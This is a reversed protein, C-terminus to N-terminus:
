GVRDISWAEFGFVFCPFTCGLPPDPTVFVNAAVHGGAVQLRGPALSVVDPPAPALFGGVESERAWTAGRRYLAVHGVTVDPHGVEASPVPVGRSTVALLDGDLGIAAGFYAGGYTDPEGVPASLTQEPTFGDGGDAYVEVVPASTDTARVQVAVRDVTPGDDVALGQGVQVPGGAVGGVSAAPAWAGADARFVRGGPAVSGDASRATVALLDGDLAIDGGFGERLAAPWSPDPGLATSTTTSVTPGTTDLGQVVVTGDVGATPPTGPRFAIWRDTVAALFRGPPIPVTGISSWTGGSRRFVEVQSSGGLGIVDGSGMPGAIGLDITPTLEQPAGLTSGGPGTRPFLQLTATPPSGAPSDLRLSAFWEASTWAGVQNVSSVPLVNTATRALRTVTWTAAVPPPTCAVALLTATAAALM